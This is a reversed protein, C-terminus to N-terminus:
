ATLAAGPMTGPAEAMAGQELQAKPCDKAIHGPEKCAYCSKGEKCDRAFHGVEDCRRCRVAGKGGSVGVSPCQARM